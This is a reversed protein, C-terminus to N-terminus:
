CGREFAHVFATFDDTDVFGSGDFDADDDGWEFASVFAALDDIDVAGDADFDAPCLVLSYLERGREPTYASFYLSGQHFVANGQPYSGAIGPWLDQILRTGAGTGDTTWLELGTVGDDATFYARGASSVLVRQLDISSAPGPRIDKVIETTEPTGRTVWLETGYEPTSLIAYFVGDSAAAGRVASSTQGPSADALLTTSDPSGDAFWLEAGHAFDAASYLVSGQNVARITISASQSTDPRPDALRVTGAETGDTRWLSDGTPEIGVFYVFAGDSIFQTGVGSASGNNLSKLLRTGAPTGDSVWLEFGSNNVNAAFVLLDGITAGSGVFPTDNTAASLTIYTVDGATPGHVVLEGNQNQCGRASYIRTQGAIPVGLSGDSAGPCSDSLVVTGGVTGDTRMVERGLGPSTSDFAMIGGGTTFWSSTARVQASSLKTVSRDALSVAWPSLDETLFNLVLSGQVVDGVRPRSSGPGDNIDCVLRRSQPAGHVASLEHGLGALDDAYLLTGDALPQLFPVNAPDGTLQFTGQPTGDTGIVENPVLTADNRATIYVSGGAVARLSDLDASSTQYLVSTGAPTGDTSCVASQFNQLQSSFIIRGGVAALIRFGTGAAAPSFEARTGEVTGDTSWFEKPNKDPVFWLRDGLMAFNGCGGSTTDASFDKLLYTGQATGDTRWVQRGLSPISLTLVAASNIEGPASRLPLAASVDLLNVTGETTGDSVWFRTVGGPETATFYVKGGIEFLESFTSSLADVATIDKVLYTGEPTGDSRWLERGHAPDTATFLLINGIAVGPSSVGSGTGPLVDAVMHTGASTGDTVWLESGSANTTATFFVQGGCTVFCDPNSSWSGPELDRVLRTATQTGDSYWLEIGHEETQAAFVAGIGIAASRVRTLNNPSSVGFALSSQDGVARDDLEAVFRIVEPQACAHHASMVMGSCVLLEAARSFKM